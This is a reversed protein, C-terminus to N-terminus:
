GVALMEERVLRLRVQAPKAGDFYYAGVADTVNRRLEEWADGETFIAEGLAEATYGGDSEQSVEFVIERMLM